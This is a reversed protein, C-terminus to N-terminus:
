FPPKTYQTLGSSPIASFTEPHRISITMTLRMWTGEHTSTLRIQRPCDLQHFLVSLHDHHVMSCCLWGSDCQSMLHCQVYGDIQNLLVQALIELM